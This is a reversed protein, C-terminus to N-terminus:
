IDLGFDSLQQTTSSTISLVWGGLQWDWFPAPIISIFDELSRFQRPQSKNIPSFTRTM